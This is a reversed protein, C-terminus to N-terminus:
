PPFPSSGVSDKSYHYGDDMHSVWKFLLKRSLVGQRCFIMPTCHM